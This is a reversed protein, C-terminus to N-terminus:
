DNKEVEGWLRIRSVGGDPYLNLRVHTIPGIDLLEDQYFHQQDMNLKQEPLLFDWKESQDVSQDIDGKLNAGQLSFRDPYNGKFHATDLECRLPKSTQALAIVCWDNGPERRRRTEWGEGMNIGRGPLLMNSVVGFHADNWAVGYAGNLASTLELYGNEDCINKGIPKGFVRFRAIGGDPFINLRLYSIGLQSKDEPIRFFHHSDSNLNQKEFLNIWSDPSKPDMGVVCGDLSASTPFNGTFFSTDIHVGQIKGPAALQIICWDNGPIRRRRSEWGDMWKGHDDYKGIIFIAPDPNLMREKAAFFDDSCDTAKAGLRPDALNISQKAWDPIVFPKSRLISYESM